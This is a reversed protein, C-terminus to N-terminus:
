LIRELIDRVEALVEEQPRNTDVITCNRRASLYLLQGDRVKRQFELGEADFRDENDPDKRRLGVEPDVDFFIWHNPEVGHRSWGDLYLFLQNLKEGANPAVIQYGKTAESFRDCFVHQGRELRRKVEGLIHNERGAEVLLLEQYPTLKHEWHKNLLIERIARGVDTGGPEHTRYVGYTELFGEAELLDLTTTKGSGGGGAFVVFEGQGQQTM